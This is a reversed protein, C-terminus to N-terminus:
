LSPFPFNRIASDAIAIAEERSAHELGITYRYYGAENVQLNSAFADVRDRYAIQEATSQATDIAYRIPIATPLVVPVPTQAQIRDVVQPQEYFSLPVTQEGTAAPRLSILAAFSIGVAALGAYKWIRKNHLFRM